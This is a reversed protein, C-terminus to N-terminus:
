VINLKKLGLPICPYREILDLFTRPTGTLGFKEPHGVGFDTLGSIHPMLPVPKVRGDLIKIKKSKQGWGTGGLLGGFPGLLREYHVNGSRFLVMGHPTDNSGAQGMWWSNKIKESKWGWRRTKLPQRSGKSPEQPSLHPRFDSFILFEQCAPWAPESAM